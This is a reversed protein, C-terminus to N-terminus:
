KSMDGCGYFYLLPMCVMTVVTFFIVLSKLLKFYISVAIGLEDLGFLHKEDSTLLRGTDICLPIQRPEGNIIIRPHKMNMNAKMKLYSLNGKKGQGQQWNNTSKRMVMSKHLTAGREKM